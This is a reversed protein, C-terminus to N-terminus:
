KKDTSSSLYLVVVFVALVVVVSSLSEPCRSRVVAFVDVDVAVVGACGGSESRGISM